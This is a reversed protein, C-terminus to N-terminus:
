ISLFVLLTPNTTLFVYSSQRQQIHTHLQTVSCISDTSTNITSQLQIHILNPTSISIKINQAKHSYETGRKLLNKKLNQTV